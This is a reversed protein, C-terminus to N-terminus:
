PRISPGKPTAALRPMLGCVSRARMRLSPISGRANLPFYSTPASVAFGFFNFACECELQSFFQPRWQKWSGSEDALHARGQMRQAHTQTVRVGDRAAPKLDVSGGRTDRLGGPELGAVNVAQEALHRYYEAEAEAPPIYRIPELRRQHNFSALWELTALGKAKRSKWPTRRHTLEAKCLGNITEGLANDPSEGRSGVTPGIGAEALRDTYRTCVRRSGRDSHHVLTDSREPQRDYLAQERADLVFDTRLSCSARWGVIRRVSVVCPSGPGRNPRGTGVFAGCPLIRCPHLDQMPLSNFFASL